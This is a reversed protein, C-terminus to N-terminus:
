REVEWERMPFVGKIILALLGVLEGVTMGGLWRLTALDVDVVDIARLTGLVFVLALSVLYAIVVAYVLNERIRVLSRLARAGEKLPLDREATFTGKPSL